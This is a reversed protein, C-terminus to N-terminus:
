RAEGGGSTAVPHVPVSSTSDLSGLVVRLRHVGGDDVLPIAASKAPVGDLEVAVVGRCRRAGNEVAISYLTGGFRWELTYGPWSSPICPDIKFFAGRRELGLIGELAVRYMWGASRHVLDLRWARPAGSPRLRRGGGRVTRDPLARDPEGHARPQDSEAHPLAGGGRRRQRSALSRARGVGGRAHVPRRERARGPLLGQHVGARAAHSRVAAHAPPRRGLQAERPARARRGHRARCAEEAGRGLARGLEAGGLRDEGRREAGSGLPTGDDFYARRYWEGDWAQELTAGCARASPVTARPARRRTAFTASPRSREWSSTSSGASSSARAAGRPGVRNYGDNWDCSGILPLGHAGVPLKEVARVCHDFLTGGRPPSRRSDRLGRAGRTRSRAGRPVSGSTSSPATTRDTARVRATAYPLWLLDDSCRTRIGQGSPPTGGTSSTARSSSGAAARLLHERTLDPRTMLLALVDQLQDRFGYAGGSQYYGSRAWLRCALDSLRALPQRAPRVLRRSHHCARRRADRGLVGRGRRARSGGRESRRPGRVACSRAPRWKARGEGLLFVARRTEGPALEVVVQLAACPDLGSGFRNALPAARRARRRASRATAASSSGATAPPPPSRSAAAPSPSAVARGAMSTARSSPAPRSTSSPRSTSRVAPGPRVSPGSATPSSPSLRRPRSRNTLTLLSLKVPADRAVFV